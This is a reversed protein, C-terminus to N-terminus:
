DADAAPRYPRRHRLGCEVLHARRQTELLQELREPGRFSNGAVLRAVDGRARLRERTLHQLLADAGDETDVRGGPFVWAGPVFGSSRNRQVLLIEIGDRGAADRALVVTAAPRAPAPEEPVEDISEAFGAPLNEAPIEFDAESM